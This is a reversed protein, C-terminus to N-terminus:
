RQKEVKIWKEIRPKINKQQRERRADEEKEDVIAILKELDRLVPVGAIQVSARVKHSFEEHARGVDSISDAFSKTNQAEKNGDL